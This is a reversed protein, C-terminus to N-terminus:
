KPDVSALNCLRTQAPLILRIKRHNYRRSNLLLGKCNAMQLTQPSREPTTHLQSEANVRRINSEAMEIYVIGHAPSLLLRTGTGQCRVRLLAGRSLMETM